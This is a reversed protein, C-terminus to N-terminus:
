LFAGVNMYYDGLGSRFNDFMRLPELMGRRPARRVRDRDVVGIGGTFRRAGWYTQVCWLGTGVVTKIRESM